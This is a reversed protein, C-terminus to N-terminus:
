WRWASVGRRSLFRRCCWWRRRWIFGHPIFVIVDGAPHLADAADQQEADSGEQKRVSVGVAIVIVACRTIPGRDGEGDDGDAAEPVGDGAAVADVAIVVVSM